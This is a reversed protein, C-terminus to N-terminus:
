IENRIRPSIKLYGSHPMGTGCFRSEVSYSMQILSHFDFKFPGHRSIKPSQKNKMLRRGRPGQNMGYFINFNTEFERLYERINAQTDAIRRLAYDYSQSIRCLAYDPKQQIGCLAADFHCLV